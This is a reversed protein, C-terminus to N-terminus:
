FLVVCSLEQNKAKIEIKKDQQMLRLFLYLKRM